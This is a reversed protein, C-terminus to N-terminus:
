KPSKENFWDYRSWEQCTRCDANFDPCRPGWIRWIWFRWLWRDFMSFTGM